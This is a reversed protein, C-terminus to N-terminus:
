VPLVSPAPPVYIGHQKLMQQAPPNFLYQGIVSDRGVYEKLSYDPHNKGMTEVKGIMENGKKTVYGRVSILGPRYTGKMPGYKHDHDLQYHFPGVNDIDEKKRVRMDLPEGSIACKHDQFELQWLHMEYTWGLFKMRNGWFVREPHNPKVKNRGLKVCYEMMYHPYGHLHKINGKM